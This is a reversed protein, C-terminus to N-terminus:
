RWVERLRALCSTCLFMHPQTSALHPFGAPGFAIWTGDSLPSSQFCADCPMPCITPM